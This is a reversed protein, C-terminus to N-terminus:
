DIEILQKEWYVQRMVGVLVPAGGAVVAEEPDDSKEGIVRLLVRGSDADLSDVRVGADVVARPLSVWRLHVWRGVAGRRRPAHLILLRDAALAVGFRPVAAPTKPCGTASRAM